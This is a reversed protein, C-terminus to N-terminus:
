APPPLGLDRYAEDVLLALHLRARTREHNLRMRYKARRLNEAAELADVRITITPPRHVM